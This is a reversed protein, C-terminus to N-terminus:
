KLTRAVVAIGATPCSLQRWEPCTKSYTCRYPPTEGSSLDMRLIRDFMRYGPLAGM